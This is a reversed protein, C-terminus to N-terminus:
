NVFPFNDKGWIGSPLSLGTRIKENRSDSGVFISARKLTPIDKLKLYDGLNAKTKGHIELEELAPSRLLPSLDSLNRMDWLSIKRLGKLKEFNPMKKMNTIQELFLFQMQVLDELPEFETLRLIRWLELYKLRMKPLDSFDNIGGLKIALWWLPEVETLFRLSNLTISRLTLKELKEMPAIAAIHKKHGELYLAKLNKMKPLFGLSMAKSKTNGLNLHELQPYVNELGAFSKITWVDASFQKIFSFYKLFKFDKVTDWGYVRLHDFGNAEMFRGLAKYDNQDLPSSFQIRECSEPIKELQQGTIPSEVNKFM